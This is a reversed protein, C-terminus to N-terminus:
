YLNHLASEITTRLERDRSQQALQLGTQLDERAKALGRNYYAEAFDPKLRIARDYDAIAADYQELYNKALGRNNYAITYDPKLYIAQDYRLVAEQYRKLSFMTDGWRYYTEASISQNDQLSPQARAFQNLLAGLYNVPIAFNLSQGGEVTAVSVGIVEGINNLVPGGSSGPSIPATMQLRKDASSGRIGSIMGDSFTGDLGKPNGAVYVGDGIEIAESNAISLPQVGSASVQLVALDHEQDVGNVGEITYVTEQGVRKATGQTAGEIVHFNTAIRNPQVFFGSGFGLPQDSDDKM